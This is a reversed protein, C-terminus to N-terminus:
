NEEKELKNLVSKTIDIAKERVEIAAKEIVPTGKEKALEVLKQTEKKIKEGKEKAVKLVKEKDLDELQIKLRNLKAELEKKIDEKDLEKMKNCLEDIKCKLEKRTKKGEQPAILVGIGVGVCAGLIFKGFGKKSM